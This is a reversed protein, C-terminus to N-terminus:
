GFLLAYTLHPRGVIHFIDAQGACSNVRLKVEEFTIPGESHDDFWVAEEAIISLFDEFSVREEALLRIMSALPPCARVRECVQATTLTPGHGNRWADLNLPSRFLTATDM